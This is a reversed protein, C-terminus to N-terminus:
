HSQGSVLRLSFHHFIWESYVRCGGLWLKSGPRKPPPLPLSSPLDYICGTGSLGEKRSGSGKERSKPAECCGSSGAESSRGQGGVWGLDFWTRSRLARSALNRSVVFYPGSHLPPPPKQRLEPFCAPLLAPPHLFTPFASLIGM